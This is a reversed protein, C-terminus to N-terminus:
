SKIAISKLLSITRADHLALGGISRPPRRRATFFLRGVPPSRFRTCSASREEQSRSLFDHPPEQARQIGILTGAGRAPQASFWRIARRRQEQGQRERRFAAPLGPLHGERNWRHRAAAERVAPRPFRR